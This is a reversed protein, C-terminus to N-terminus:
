NSQCNGQTSMEKTDSNLDAIHDPLVIGELVWSEMEPQVNVGNYVQTIHVM